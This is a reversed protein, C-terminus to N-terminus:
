KLLNDKFSKLVNEANFKETIKFSEEKFHAIKDKDLVQLTKEYFDNKNDFEFIYGNVGDKIYEKAYKWNSAIVALSAIYADIITGPLGETYYHTPFLLVDYKSLTEYEKIGNPTISGQYHINNNELSKIKNLYTEECQGYIDLIVHNATNENLRNVVEIADEIGKEKIVRAWFVFKFENTKLYNNNFSEIYRFNNMQEINNLGLENLQNKLAVSEVYIKTLNKYNRIDYKGEAIKNGIIGGAVFYYIDKKYHIIRLFKLLKAAGPSSSCIVICDAKKLNKLIKITISFFNRSYNDTDVSILNIDTQNKLYKELMRCKITVGDLRNRKYSTSSALLIKKM